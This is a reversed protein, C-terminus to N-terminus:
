NGGPLKSLARDLWGVFGKGDEAVPALLPGLVDMDPATDKL